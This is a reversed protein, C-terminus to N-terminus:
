KFFERYVKKPKNEDNIAKEKIRQLQDIKFAVYKKSHHSIRDSTRPNFLVPKLGSSAKRKTSTSTRKVPANKQTIKPKDKSQM